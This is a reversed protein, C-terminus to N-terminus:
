HVDNSSLKQWGAFSWRWLGTAGFDGYFVGGATVQFTTAQLDSLKQWGLTSASWRWIGNSFQGYVDGADDVDLRTAHGGSIHGCGATSDWRWLGDTYDAAMTSPVNRDELTELELRNRPRLM